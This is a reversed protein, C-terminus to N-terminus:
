EERLLGLRVVQEIRNRVAAFAAPYGVTLATEAIEELSGAPPAAGGSDCRLRM